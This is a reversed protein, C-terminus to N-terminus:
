LAETVRRWIAEVRSEWSVQQLIATRAADTLAQGKGAIAAAVGDLFAEATGAVTVYPAIDGINSVDTTVVKVGLSFYVYLKLPNMRDSMDNKVHPMIAVDFGRIIRQAIDYTRVGLFHINAHRRSMEQVEPRGHASGVLVISANPFRMATQEILGLDVRDRLNGVYGIIPRPLGAIDAAQPWHAADAFLEAGNPVVHIDARLPSFIQQVAECNSFVVHAGALIVEYAKVLKQRYSESAGPFARQDDIIDAIVLRPQVIEAVAPYDFVVPCVWLLPQEEVSLEKLTQRVFSAYADRSPLDQGFAREPRGGSRCLFTRRVFSPSDATRLIRRVTNVYVLNGQNTLGESSQTAQRELDTLSLPADFHIVRRVRETQLLYKAIMDSRRGYIDSDNQKWLFVLDRLKEKAPAAAPRQGAPKDTSLTPLAIGTRKELFRALREFEPLATRRTRAATDYAFDLRACNVGYSLESLFYSRASGEGPVRPPSTALRRLAADLADANAVLEIAGALGVDEMPPVPTALVPVDMALADTLKAPIQFESIAHTPDQLIAISDAMNVLEALRGWPQDPHLGIRARKYGGLRAALRKDTVSGIVCLALRDDGLRELADALDVIGKHLRPTGLFLLVRDQDTYGFEARIRARDYLAPDFVQEQRAHRVMIGGFKRRLAVNSVTIGDAEAVLTEAFRTWLDSHPIDIEAPDNQAARLLDEFSAPTKTKVFSLEHDDIDVVMPCNNAQRILAGILLSPLRPKGVHVVDCVTTKALEVAGAVLSRLDTAPFNRVPMETGALPPWMRGGYFAFVPGLLETHHYQIAMDALLFARGVPNHAMDWSVVAVRLPQDAALAEPAVEVATPPDVAGVGQDVLTTSRLNNSHGLSARRGIPASALDSLAAAVTAVFRSDSFNTLIRQRARRGLKAAIERDKMLTRMHKRAASIDPEELAIGPGEHAKVFDAAFPDTIDSLTIIRTPVLAAVTDDLYDRMGTSFPAIVPLETLMAEVIPLGWGEGRTMTVFADHRNYHRAMWAETLSKTSIIVDMTHRVGRITRRVFQGAQDATGAPLHMTLSAEDPDFEEGFARLLLDVGKRYSFNGVFIFSFKKVGEDRFKRKPSFFYETIGQQCLYVKPFTASLLAFATKNPAFIADAQGIAAREAASVGSVNINTLLASPKAFPRCAM